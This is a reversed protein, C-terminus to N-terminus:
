ADAGAHGMLRVTSLPLMAPRRHRRVYAAAETAAAYAGALDCGDAAFYRIGPRSRLVSEVWGAPSRVSIGIGNDECVFLVPLPLGAHACWGATNLGAQATAHNVSADGFSCVVVADSPWSPATESDRRGAPRTGNTSLRRGREVAFGLGVARPLHSAITSTM